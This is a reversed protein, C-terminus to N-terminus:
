PSRPWTSGTNRRSSRSSNRRRRRAHGDGLDRIRELPLAHGVAPEPGLAQLLGLYPQFEGAMANAFEMAPQTSRRSARTTSASASPSSARARRRFLTGPTRRTRGAWRSSSPDRRCASRTSPRCHGPNCCGSDGEGRRGSEADTKAFTGDPNRARTDVKPAEAVPAAEGRSPRRAAEGDREGERVARSDHRRPRRSSRRANRAHGVVEAM